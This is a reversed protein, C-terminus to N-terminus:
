FIISQQVLMFLMKILYEGFYNLGFFIGNKLNSLFRLASVDTDNFAIARVFVRCWSVFSEKCGTFYFVNIDLFKNGEDSADALDFANRQRCFKLVDRNFVDLFCCAKLIADDGNDAM